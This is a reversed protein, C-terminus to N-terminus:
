EGYTERTITAGPVIAIEMELSALIKTVTQLTPNGRCGELRSIEPQPVGCLQSLQAQTLGLRERADMVARALINQSRNQRAKLNIEALDQDSIGGGSKLLDRMVDEMPVFKSKKPM